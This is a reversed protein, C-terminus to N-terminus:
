VQTALVKLFTKRGFRDSFEAASFSDGFFKPIKKERKPYM